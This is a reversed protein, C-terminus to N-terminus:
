KQWSLGKMILHTTIPKGFHVSERGRESAKGGDLRERGADTNTTQTLNGSLRPCPIRTLSRGVLAGNQTHCHSRCVCFLYVLEDFVEFVEVRDVWGDM